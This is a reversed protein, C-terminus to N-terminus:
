STINLTQSESNEKKEKKNKSAFMWTEFALFAMFYILYSVIFSVSNEKILFVYMFIFILSLFVKLMKAAMIVMINNNGKREHILKIVAVGFLTFFAPIAPLLSFNYQQLLSYFLVEQISLLGLMLVVLIVIYPSKM